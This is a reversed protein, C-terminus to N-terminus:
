EPGTAQGYGASVVKWDGPPLPVRKGLLDLPTTVVEGQAPLGDAAAPHWWLAGALAALAIAGSILRM